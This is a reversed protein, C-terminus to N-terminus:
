QAIGFRAAPDGFLNVAIQVDRMAPQQAALSQRALLLADGIRAGPKALEQYFATALAHDSEASTLGSAGITAGGGQEIALFVQALSNAYPDVFYGNWCGWQAVLPMTTNALAGARLQSSTLV